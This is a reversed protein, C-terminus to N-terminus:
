HNVERVLAFAADHQEVPFSFSAAGKPDIRALRTSVAGLRSGAADTLDFVLEVDLIPRGTNNRVTGAVKTGAGRVVHVDMVDVDRNADIRIGPDLNPRVDAAVQEPTLTASPPPLTTPRNFYGLLALGIAAIVLVCPVAILAAQRLRQALTRNTLYFPDSPAAGGDLLRTVPGALPGLWAMRKGPRANAPSM